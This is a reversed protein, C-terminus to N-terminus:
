HWVLDLIQKRGVNDILRWNNKDTRKEPLTPDFLDYRNKVYKKLEYILDQQGMNLIELIYGLRKAVANKNYKNVYNSLKVYDIKNKTLWIGKAIETIGGCYQPHALADIITKELDSIRVKEDRTVWEDKVGWIFKNKVFILVLKEKMEQPVIQRHPSAVFIKILPQTLMGWYHMASYFAIYYDPSNVVERAAVYWNGIYQEASGLEQPVILFKGSKLRTVIGRKVLKSLLDTAENYGKGLIRQVDCIKFVPKNEDYLWSILNASVKGLTKLSKM